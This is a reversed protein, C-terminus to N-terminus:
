RRKEDGKKLIELVCIFGMLLLIGAFEQQLIKNNMPNEVERGKGVFM